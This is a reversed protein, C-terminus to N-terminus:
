NGWKAWLQKALGWCFPKWKLRPEINYYEHYVVYTNWLLSTFHYDDFSYMWGERRYPYYKKGLFHNLRDCTNFLLKYVEHFPHEDLEVQGKKYSFANTLLYLHGLEPHWYYSAAEKTKPNWAVSWEGIKEVENRLLTWVESFRTPNVAAIYMFGSSRLWNRSVDDLYCADSVVVTNQRQQVGVGSLCTQFFELSTPVPTTQVPVSNRLFPLGTFKGKLSCETIWHGWQPDKNPVWRKCPSEGTYGLHKEDITLVEPVLMAAESAMNLVSVSAPNIWVHQLRKYRDRGMPRKGFISEPLPFNSCFDDNKTGQIYARVAWLQYVDATSINHAGPRTEKAWDRIGPM